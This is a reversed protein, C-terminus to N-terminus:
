HLCCQYPSIQNIVFGLQMLSQYEPWLHIQLFLLFGFEFNAKQPLIVMIRKRLLLEFCKLSRLLSEVAAVIAIQLHIKRTFEFGEFCKRDAVAM